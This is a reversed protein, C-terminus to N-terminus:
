SYKVREFYLGHPPATPGGKRRDHAEFAAKFDAPTWQGGGVLVLTGVMNRVQHYLFSRAEAEFFISDGDQAVNLVDLTKLPSNSQCNHARFTSFDHHGILTQAAEHMAAVDLPKPVHWAYDAELALPARRNVIRYRYRRSKASFRAHFDAAVAEAELVAVRHPRVHFNVADRVTDTTADKALDCHAGQALAHVGADTRGAVHLTIDEGSFKKFADELVQQVSVDHAQRQWGCFGTGDYELTLKWRTM